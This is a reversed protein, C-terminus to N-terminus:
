SKRNQGIKTRAAWLEPFFRRRLTTKLYSVGSRQFSYPGLTESVAASGTGVNRGIIREVMGVHHNRWLWFAEDYELLADALDAVDSNPSDSYVSAIAKVELSSSTNGVKLLGKKGLLHLFGDWLSPSEMRKTLAEIGKPDDKHLDLFREDKQGSIFELERFQTSQFGSAPRLTDRFKAFDNPRITELVGLQQTLVHLVAVVRGLLRAAERAEGRYMDDIASELETLMLKFWLEYTQHAVVFLMEDHQPPYSVPHQLQLLEHLKLYGSYSQPKKRRTKLQAM